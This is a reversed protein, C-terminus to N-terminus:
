LSRKKQKAGFNHLLARASDETKAATGSVKSIAKYSHPKHTKELPASRNAHIIKNYLKSTKAGKEKKKPASTQNTANGGKSPRIEM